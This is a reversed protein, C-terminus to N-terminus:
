FECTECIGHSIEYWLLKLFKEFYTEEKGRHWVCISIFKKEPEHKLIKIKGTELEKEAWLYLFLYSKWAKRTRYFEFTENNNIKDIALSQWPLLKPEPNLNLDKLKM